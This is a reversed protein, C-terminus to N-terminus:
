FRVGARLMLTLQPRDDPTDSTFNVRRAFVYGVELHEKLRGSSVAEVGLIVRLDTYDVSDAAGNAREVEWRGGGFQGALYGWLRTGGLTAFHYSVKPQPFV